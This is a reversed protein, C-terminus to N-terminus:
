VIRKSVDEVMTITNWLVVVVVLFMLFSIIASIQVESKGTAKVKISVNPTILEAKIMILYQTSFM